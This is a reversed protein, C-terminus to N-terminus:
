DFIHSELSPWIDKLKIKPKKCLYVPINNEEDIAYKHHIIKILQCDEFAKEVVEKELGITIGIEGSTKGTGWLWFSGHACVPKPLNYKEGIITLAGAEGYNEALLVCKEKDEKPLSTYISDILKVQEEWGFMDAYDSTLKYRGDKEPQIKQYAVYDEISLVPIDKPIFYFSILVLFSIISYFLVSKNRLMKQVKFAGFAFMVPYIAYFYYSKSKLFWLLFFVLIFTIGISKYKKIESDFFLAFLGILAIIFTFPSAIQGLVFDFKGIADLQNENLKQFHKLVPFDHQIQWILNPLVIILSIIGSIYFWKNKIVKERETAILSVFISILLIAITYKNMFGIALSIGILVIYKNAHTKIYRVLYYFSLTWFFQDFAVPQFLLHNRYFANFILILVGTLLVTKKKGGIEIAILCSLVLIGIGAFTPFLRMGFLSYGFISHSIKAILAIFPPFEMYGWDLHEGVSLHLLEDRHFGYNQNGIFHIILKVFSLTLILPLYKKMM